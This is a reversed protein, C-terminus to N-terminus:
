FSMIGWRTADECENHQSAGEQWLHPEHQSRLPKPLVRSYPLGSSCFSSSIGTRLGFTAHWTLESRFFRLTHHARLRLGYGSPASTPPRPMWSASCRLCRSEWASTPRRTRQTQASPPRMARSLRRMAGGECFSECDRGHNERQSSPISHSRFLRCGQM